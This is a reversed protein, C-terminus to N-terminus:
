NKKKVNKHKKRVKNGGGKLAQGLADAQEINKEDTWHRKKITTRNDGYWELTIIYRQLLWPMQLKSMNRESGEGQANHMPRQISFLIVINIDVM